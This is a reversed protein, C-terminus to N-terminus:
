NDIGTLVKDRHSTNSASVISGTHSDSTIGKVTEGSVGNHIFIKADSGVSVLNDGSPSFRVDQM